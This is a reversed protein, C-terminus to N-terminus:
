YLSHTPNHAPTKPTVDSLERLFSHRPRRSEFERGRGHCYLTKIYDSSILRHRLVDKSVVLYRIDSRITGKNYGSKASNRQLKLPASPHNWPVADFLEIAWMLELSLVVCVAKPNYRKALTVTCSIWSFAWYLDRVSLRSRWQSGAQFM